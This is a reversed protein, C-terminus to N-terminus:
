LPEFAGLALIKGSSWQARCYQLLGQDLGRGQAISQSSSGQVFGRPLQQYLDNVGM